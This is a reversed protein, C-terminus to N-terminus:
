GDKRGRTGSSGSSCSTERAQVETGTLIRFLGHSESDIEAGRANDDSLGVAAVIRQHVEFTRRLLNAVPKRRLHGYMAAFPHVPPIDPFRPFFRFPGHDPGQLAAELIGPRLRQYMEAPLRNAQMSQEGFQRRRQPNLQLVVGTQAQRGALRQLDHQPHRGVGVAILAIEGRLSETRGTEFHQPQQVLGRRCAHLESIAIGGAPLGFAFFTEQDVIQAAPGEVSGQHGDFVVHVAHDARRADGRQAAVIHVLDERVQGQLAGPNGGRFALAKGLGFGEPQVFLAAFLFLAQIGVRALHGDVQFAHAVSPGLNRNRHRGKVIKAPRQDFLRALHHFFQERRM